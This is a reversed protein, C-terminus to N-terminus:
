HWPEGLGLLDVTHFLQGVDPDIVLLFSIHKSHATHVLVSSVAVLVSVLRPATITTYLFHPISVCCSIM